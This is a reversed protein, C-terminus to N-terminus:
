AGKPLALPVPYATQALPDLQYLGVDTGIYLRDNFVVLSRVATRLQPPQEPPQEPLQLPKDTPYEFDPPLASNRFRKNEATAQLAQKAAKEKEKAEATEIAHAAGADFADRIRDRLWEQTEAPLLLILRDNARQTRSWEEFNM